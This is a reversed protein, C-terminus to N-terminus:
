LKKLVGFAGAGGLIAVAAGVGVNVENGNAINTLTVKNNNLASVEIEGIAAGVAILGSTIANAQGGAVADLEGATLETMPLQEMTDTM